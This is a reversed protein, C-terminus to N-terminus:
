FLKHQRKSTAFFEENRESWVECTTLLTLSALAKRNSASGGPMM